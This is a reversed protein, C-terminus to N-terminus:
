KAHTKYCRLLSKLTFEQDLLITAPLAPALLRSYGGTLVVQRLDVQSQYQRIMEHILALHGQCVGAHIAQLTSRGQWPLKTFDSPLLTDPLANTGSSLSQMALKLGPAIAGGAYSGEPSLYDFTTCTGADIVLVSHGYRAKAEYCNAVRDSGSEQPYDVDLQLGFDSLQLERAECGLVSNIAGLWPEVQQPVVSILRGAVVRGVLGDAQFLPLLRSRVDDASGHNGGSFRYTLLPKALAPDEARLAYCAASIESNGIDVALFYDLM